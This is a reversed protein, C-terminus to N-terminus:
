LRRRGFDLWILLLIDLSWFRLLYVTRRRVKLCHWQCQTTKEAVLVMGVDVEDDVVIRIPLVMRNWSMCDDQNAGGSNELAIKLWAALYTGSLHLRETIEDRSVDRWHSSASITVASPKLALATM